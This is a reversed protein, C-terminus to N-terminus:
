FGPAMSAEREDMLEHFADDLNLESESELTHIESYSAVSEAFKPDYDSDKCMWFLPPLKEHLDTRKPPTCELDTMYIIGGIEQSELESEAWAVATNIPGTFDTGGGGIVELNHVCDDLNDENLLFPKGRIATDACMVWVDANENEDLIGIIESFFTTMAAKDSYISGSTDVLVVTPLQKKEFPEIAAEYVPTDIGMGTPDQFYLIDPFNENRAFDLGDGQVIERLVTTIQKKPKNLEHLLYGVANESHSGAMRHGNPSNRRIEEAKSYAEYIQNKFDEVVKAVDDKSNVDNLGMKELVGELGAKKATNIFDDLSMVHNNSKNREADNLHQWLNQYAPTNPVKDSHSHHPQGGQPQGSQTGAGPQPQGAQQQGNQPGTGQQPQGAQQQGNQPGTGQQPQGSQQQGNQPDAGHQPQGSQQQGNQPDAGHQPQGGQNAQQMQQKRQKRGEETLISCILEEPFGGFKQREEDTHGYSNARVDGTVELDFDIKLDLNISIDQGINAIDPNYQLCRSFHDRSIHTYEHAIVFLTNHSEHSSKRQEIDEAVIKVFFDANIFVGGPIAFATDVQKTYEPHDYIFMPVTEAMISLLGFRPLGYQDYSTFLERYKNLLLQLQPRSNLKQPSIQNM